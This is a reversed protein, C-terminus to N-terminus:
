KVCFCARLEVACAHLMYEILRPNYFKIEKTIITHPAWIAGTAPVDNRVFASLTVFRRVSVDVEVKVTLWLVKDSMAGLVKDVIFLLTYLARHVAHWCLPRRSQPRSM